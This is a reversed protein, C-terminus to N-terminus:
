KKLSDRIETLLQQQQKFYEIKAEERSKQEAAEKEQLAKAEAEAKKM